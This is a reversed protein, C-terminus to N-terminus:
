AKSNQSLLAGPNQSKGIHIAMRMLKAQQLLYSIHNLRAPRDGDDSDNAVFEDSMQKRKAM